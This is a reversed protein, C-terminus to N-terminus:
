HAGVCAASGSASVAVEYVVAPQCDEQMHTYGCMVIASGSLVFRQKSLKVQVSQDGGLTLTEKDSGTCIRSCNIMVILLNRDYLEMLDHAYRMMNYTSGPFVCSNLDEPSSIYVFGAMDLMRVNM